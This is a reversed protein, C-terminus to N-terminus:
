KRNIKGSATSKLSSVFNIVRPIKHPELHEALFKRIELVSPPEGNAVIDCCVINGLVSNARPYVAVEAVNTMRLIAYEIEEPNVRFGGVNFFGGVRGIFRFEDCKTTDAWEIIDGTRYYEQSDSSTFKGLLSAHVELEPGSGYDTIKVLNRLNIPIKFFEGCAILLSGFETSAYINTFKANPFKEQLTDLLKKDSREGGLSIRQLTPFTEAVVSGSLRRLFTASASIHTISFKKIADFVDYPQKSFIDIATNTNLIFQFFVLIGAMHAINYAFGWVDQNHSQSVRATHVLTSALHTVSKPNNLTGSTFLTIRSQSKGIADILEQTTNFKKLPYQNKHNNLQSLEHEDLSSIDSHLLAIDVNNALSIILSTITELQSASSTKLINKCDTASNICALLEAYTIDVDNASFFIKDSIDM